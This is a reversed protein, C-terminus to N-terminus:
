QKDLKEDIKTQLEKYKKYKKDWKSLVFWQRIGIGLWVLVVVVPILPLFRFSSNNNNWPNHDTNNALVKTDEFIGKQTTGNIGELSIRNERIGEGVGGVGGGGGGGEEEGASM